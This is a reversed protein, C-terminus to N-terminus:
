EIELFFVSFFRDHGAYDQEIRPNQWPKGKFLDMIAVAQTHGIEMWGRGQPHLHQPLDQALRAYFEVGTTGGVLALAPEYDKVESDLTAYEAQAIYPPNSVFFDCKQGHMPTLLDGEGLQVEINNKHANEKAVALARPCIDALTVSLQPFRKKLAIGICGSGCCVDWLIKGALDEKALQQAIKDVLIGTEQRPILVDRTVKIACDHFEVEGHIYQAPEGKARRMLASRSKALEADSLPREFEMYLQVRSVGLADGLLEEAQRRANQVGKQKLFDTSLYLIEQVSRM